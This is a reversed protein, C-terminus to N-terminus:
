RFKFKKFSVNQPIKSTKVNLKGALDKLENFNSSFIAKGILIENEDFSNKKYLPNVVKKILNFLINVNINKRIKGERQLIPILM